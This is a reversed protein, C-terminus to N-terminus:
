DQQDPDPRHRTEIHSLIGRLMGVETQELGIRGFMRRLRPM